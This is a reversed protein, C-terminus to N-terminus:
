KVVGFINNSITIDRDVCLDCCIVKDHSCSGLMCLDDKLDDCDM